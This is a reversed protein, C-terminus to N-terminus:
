VYEPEPIEFLPHAMRIPHTSRGHSCISRSFLKPERHSDLCITYKSLSQRQLDHRRILSKIWAPLGNYFKVELIFYQTMAFRVQDESFLGDLAPFVRSRLNKDFTVRLSPDFRGAFAKRDYVILAVPRLGKGYYHYLYGQADAKEKGNGSFSLIHRDLDGTELLPQLDRYVLPARNKSICNVCKRKIELFIVDDGTPDDYGRVRYKRRYTMGDVKTRYCAFDPTDMYISRVTYTGNDRDSAYPDLQLFPRMEERLADLASVPVLYKYEWRKQVDQGM